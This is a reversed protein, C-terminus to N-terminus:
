GLRRKGSDYTDVVWQEMKPGSPYAYLTISIPGGAAQMQQASVVGNVISDAMARM